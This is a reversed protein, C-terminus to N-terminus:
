GRRLYDNIRVVSFTAMAEQHRLMGQVYVAVNKPDELLKTTSFDLKRLIGKMIGNRDFLLQKRQYRSPM